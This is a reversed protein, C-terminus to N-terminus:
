GYILEDFILVVLKPLEGLGLFLLLAANVLM